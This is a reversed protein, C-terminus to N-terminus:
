LVGLTDALWLMLAIAGIGIINASVLLATLLRQQFPTM